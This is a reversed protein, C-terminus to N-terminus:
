ERPKLTKLDILVAAPDARPRCLVGDENIRTAGTCAYGFANKGLKGGPKNAKAEALTKGRGWEGGDCVIIHDLAPDLKTATANM